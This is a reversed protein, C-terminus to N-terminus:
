RCIDYLEEYIKRLRYLTGQDSQIIAQQIYAPLGTPDNMWQLFDRVESEVVSDVRTVLSTYSGSSMSNSNSSYSLSQSNSTAQIGIEPELIPGFSKDQIKAAARAVFPYAYHYWGKAKPKVHALVYVSKDPTTAGILHGKSGKKNDTAIFREPACQLISYRNGGVEVFMGRGSQWTAIVKKMDRAVDFKKTNFLCKGNPKVIIVEDADAYGKQLKSVVSKYNTM